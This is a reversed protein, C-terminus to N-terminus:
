HLVTHTQLNLKLLWRTRFSSNKVLVPAPVTREPDFDFTCVYVCMYANPFRRSHHLTHTYTRLAHHVLAKWLSLFSAFWNNMQNAQRKNGRRM